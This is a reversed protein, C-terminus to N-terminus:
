YYMGMRMKLNKLFDNPPSCSMQQPEFANTITYNTSHNPKNGLERKQQKETKNMNKQKSPLQISVSNNDVIYM